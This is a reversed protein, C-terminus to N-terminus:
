PYFKQCFLESGIGSVFLKEKKSSLIKKLWSTSGGDVLPFAQGSKNKATIKMCFNEYYGIGAVRQLDYAFDVAPYHPKVSAEVQEQLKKLRDVYVDIGLAHFFASHTNHGM